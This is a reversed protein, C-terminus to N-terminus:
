PKQTTDQGNKSIVNYLDSRRGVNKNYAIINFHDHTDDPVNWVYEAVNQNPTIKDILKQLKYTESGSPTVFLDVEQCDGELTVIIRVQKDLFFWNAEEEIVKGDLTNFTIDKILPAQDKLVEEYMQKYDTNEHKSIGLNSCGTLNVLMFLAIIWLTKKM